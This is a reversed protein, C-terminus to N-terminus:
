KIELRVCMRQVQKKSFLAGERTTHGSENFKVSIQEHTLGIDRMIKLENAFKKAFEIAARPQRKLGKPLSAEKHAAAGLKFGQAKKAALAAKTRLSIFDLEMESMAARIHLNFKDANPLEAIKFNLRKIFGAIQEVDRSLRDLKAILLTAGVEQCMNIALMLNDRDSVKGSEIDTFEAIIEDAKDAYNNMYIEIDRRQAELGLGSRGQKQTSVRYYAVYKM